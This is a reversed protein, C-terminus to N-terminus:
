HKLDSMNEFTVFCDDPKLPHNNYFDWFLVDFTGCAPPQPFSQPYRLFERWLSATMERDKLHLHIKLLM